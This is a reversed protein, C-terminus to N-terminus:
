QSDRPRDTGEEQQNGLLEQGDESQVIGDHHPEPALQKPNETDEAQEDGHGQGVGAPKLPCTIRATREVDREDRLNEQREPDTEAKGAGSVKLRKADPRGNEDAM